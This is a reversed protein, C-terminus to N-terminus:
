MVVHYIREGPAMGKVKCCGEAFGTKICTMQTLKEYKARQRALVFDKDVLRLKQWGTITKSSLGLFHLTKNGLTTHTDNAVALNSFLAEFQLSAISFGAAKVKLSLADFNPVAGDKLVVTFINKSLDTQVDAVFDLTKLAKYITNSCMSCTLGAAQLEINRYQAQSTGALLWLASMFIIRKM